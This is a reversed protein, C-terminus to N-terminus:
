NARAERKLAERAVAAIAMRQRTALSRKKGKGGASIKAKHKDSLPGRTRGVQSSSIKARTEISFERGTRAISMKAKTEASHKRGIKAVAMKLRTAASYIRGAGSAVPWRNFGFRANTAQTADIWFQERDALVSIDAVAEILVIEFSLESHKTWSRQLTLSHHRGARLLKRHETWRVSVFRASSGIYVRGNITNRIAYIGATELSAPSSQFASM